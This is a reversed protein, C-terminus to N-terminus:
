IIFYNIIKRKKLGQEFETLSLVQMSGFRYPLSIHEEQYFM